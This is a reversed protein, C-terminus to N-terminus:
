KDTKVPAPTADSKPKPPEPPKPPDTVTFLGCRRLHRSYEDASVQFPEDKKDFIRRYNGSVRILRNGPVTRSFKLYLPAGPTGIPPSTLQPM